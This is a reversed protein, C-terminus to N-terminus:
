GQSQSKPRNHLGESSGVKLGRILSPSLARVDQPPRVSGQRPGLRRVESCYNAKGEKKGLHSVRPLLRRRGAAQSPIFYPFLPLPLLSYRKLHLAFRREDRKRKSPARDNLAIPRRSGDASRQRCLHARSEFRDSVPRNHSPSACGVGQHSRRNRYIQSLHSRRFM